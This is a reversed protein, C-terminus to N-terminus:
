AGLVRRRIAHHLKVAISMRLLRVLKSIPQAQARVLSTVTQTRKGNATQQGDRGYGFVSSSKCAMGTTILSLAFLSFKM